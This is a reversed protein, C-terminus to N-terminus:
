REVEIKCENDLVMLKKCSSCKFEIATGDTLVKAKHSMLRALKHGCNDCCIWYVKNVERIVARM